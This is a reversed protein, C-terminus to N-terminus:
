HIVVEFDTVSFEAPKILKSHALRVSHLPGEIERGWFDLFKRLEPFRPALDYEQWLFTQLLSPADPLHYTIEATTLLYGDLQRRFDKDVSHMYEEPISRKHNRHQHSTCKPVSGGQVPVVLM